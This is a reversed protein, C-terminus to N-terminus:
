WPLVACRGATARELLASNVCAVAWLTEAAGGLGAEPVFRVQSEGGTRPNSHRAAAPSVAPGALNRAAVAKSRVGSSRGGFDPKGSKPLRFRRFQCCGIELRM